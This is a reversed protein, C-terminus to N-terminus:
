GSYVTITFLHKEILEAQARNGYRLFLPLLVAFLTHCLSVKMCDKEWYFQKGGAGLRKKHDCLTFKHAIAVRFCNKTGQSTPQDSPNSFGSDWLELCNQCNSFVRILLYELSFKASCWLSRLWAARVFSNEAWWPEPVCLRMSSISSSFQQPEEDVPNLILKWANKDWLCLHMYAQSPCLLFHQIDCFDDSFAIPKTYNRTNMHTPIFTRTLSHPIYTDIPLVSYICHQRYRVNCSISHTIYRFPEHLWLTTLKLISIPLFIVLYEQLCPFCAKGCACLFICINQGIHFFIFLIYIKM